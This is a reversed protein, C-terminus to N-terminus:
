MHLSVIHYFGNNSWIYILTSCELIFGSLTCIGMKGKSLSFHVSPKSLEFVDVECGGLFDFSGATFNGFLMFKAM